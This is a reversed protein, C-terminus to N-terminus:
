REKRRERVMGRDMMRGMGRRRMMLAHAARMDIRMGIVEEEVLGMMGRPWKNVAISDLYYVLAWAQKETFVGQYSPMPTGSMGTQIIRYLDELDTGIKRPQYTLDPIDVPRGSYDRLSDAAPGDGHGDSGHCKVCGAREYMEKGLQLLEDTRPPSTPVAVARARSVSDFEPYFRKVYDVLARIEGDSLHAQPLMSTTPVGEAISRFIDDDLPLQGSTTSKFKFHGSTFALPKTQLRYAEPGQGDGQEGHCAACDRRYIREAYTM